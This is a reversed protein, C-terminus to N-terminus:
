RKLERLRQVERNLGMPTMRLQAVSAEVGANFGDRYAQERASAGCSCKASAHTRWDHGPIPAPPVWMDCGINHAFKPPTPM